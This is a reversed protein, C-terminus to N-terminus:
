AAVMRENRLIGIDLQEVDEVEPIHLEIALLRGREERTRRAVDVVYGPM